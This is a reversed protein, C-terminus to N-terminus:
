KETELQKLQKGFAKAFSIASENWGFKYGDTMGNKYARQTLDSLILEINKIQQHPYNRWYQIIDLIAKVENELNIKEIVETM